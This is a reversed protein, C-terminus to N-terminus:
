GEPPDSQGPGPLDVDLVEAIAAVTEWTTPQKGNLVRSLTERRRPHGIAALRHALDTVSVRCQHLRGHCRQVAEWLGADGAPAPRQWWHVDGGPGRSPRRPLDGGPEGAPRVAARPQSDGTGHATGQAPQPRHGAAWHEPPLIRRALPRARLDTTSPATRQM